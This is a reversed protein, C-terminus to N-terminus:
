KPNTAAIQRLVKWHADSVPMVSLRSMRVLELDAFERRAKIEALAVPRPLREHPALDIVALKTDKPQQPDAYADCTVEASGVIQKEDGTHYIYARDGRRMARLNKLALPNRIGDWVARGDRELDAYSYATPETKLLWFAM